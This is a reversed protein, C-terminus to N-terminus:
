DQELPRPDWLRKAAVFDEWELNPMDPFADRLGGMGDTPAAVTEAPLPEIRAVPRGRVTIIVENGREQVERIVASANAKLERIGIKRSLRVATM